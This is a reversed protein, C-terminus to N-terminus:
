EHDDEKQRDRHASPSLHAIAHTDWRGTGQCTGKGIPSM